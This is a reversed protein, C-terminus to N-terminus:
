GFLGYSEVLRLAFLVDLLVGRSEDGHDRRRSRWRGLWLRSVNWWQLRVHLVRDHQRNGALDSLKHASRRARRSSPRLVLHLRDPRRVLFGTRPLAHASLATRPRRRGTFPFILKGSTQCLLREPSSVTFAYLIGIAIWFSGWM